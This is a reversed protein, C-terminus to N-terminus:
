DSTPLTFRFTSGQSVTSDVWIRGGHREVIKKALALGLGSGPYQKGHVRQFPEFVLDAYERKFGLGNDKVSFLWEPGERLCSIHVRPPVESRFKCANGILNSFVKALAFFDGSVTPLPDSTVMAGSDRIQEYLLRQAEALAADIPFESLELERLEASCYQSLDQILSELRDVGELIHRLPQALRPEAAEGAHKAVLESNARITRLPERLDHIASFLFSQIETTKAQEERATAPQIMMSEGIIADYAVL